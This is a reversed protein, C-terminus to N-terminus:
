EVLLKDLTNSLLFDNNENAEILEHIEYELYYKNITFPDLNAIKDAEKFSNAKIIKMADNNDAFPGCLFLIGLKNLERLHNVHSRLLEAQLEGKRKNRLIIIFKKV